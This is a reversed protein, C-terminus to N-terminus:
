RPQRVVEPNGETWMVELRREVIRWGEPRREFRDIYRGAVVYHPGGEARRRIHQAHFYCRHAATDGDVSVEHNGVMHQSGDLPELVARIRGEISPLGELLPDGGLWATADPVFVDALASWDRDDLARCYRVVVGRIAAEDLLTQLGPEM